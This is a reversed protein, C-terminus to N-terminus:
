KSVYGHLLSVIMEINKDDFVTDNKTHIKDMYLGIFPYKSKKLAVVAASKKFAAQDSPYVTGKAGVVMFNKEFEGAIREGNEGLYKPLDTKKAYNSLRFVINDGDSVCDLNIILTNKQVDKHASAYANSGLLGIEENDFLIFAVDPSTIRDALSLVTVVGSTNDNATHKNAPGATMIWMIGFISALLTIEYIILGIPEPLDATLNVVLVMLLIVPIYMIAALVLQYIIYVPINMPTIFNPFPMVSCTDYHATIVTKAKTPDGFIINRSKLLKGHEEVRVRDGYKERLLSIFRDKQEKSKRIEFEPLIINKWDNASM